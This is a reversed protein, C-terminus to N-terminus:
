STVILFSSEFPYILQKVSDCINKLSSFFFMDEFATASTTASRLILSIRLTDVIQVSATLAAPRYFDLSIFLGGSRHDKKKLTLAFALQPM